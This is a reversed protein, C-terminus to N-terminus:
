QAPAAVDTAAAPEEKKPEPWFKFQGDKEQFKGLLTGLGQPPEELLPAFGECTRTETVYMKKSQRLAYTGGGMDYLESKALPNGLVVFHKRQCDPLRTVILFYNVKSEWFYPQERALSLSHNRGDIMHSAADDTCGSLLLLSFLAALLTLAPRLRM